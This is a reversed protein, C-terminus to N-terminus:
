QFLGTVSNWASGVAKGTSRVMQNAEQNANKVFQVAPLVTQNVAGTLNNLLNGAKLNTQVKM